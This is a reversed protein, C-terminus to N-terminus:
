TPAPAQASHFRAVFTGPDWEQDIAAQLAAWLGPDAFPAGADWEQPAAAEAAARLATQGIPMQPVAAGSGETRALAPFHALAAPGKAAAWQPIFAVLAFAEQPHQSRQHVYAHSRLWRARSPRAPHLSPFRAVGWRLAPDANVAEAGCDNIALPTHGDGFWEPSSSVGARYRLDRVMEVFPYLAHPDAANVGDQWALFAATWGYAGDGFAPAASAKHLGEALTVLEAWTPDPAPPPAGWHELLDLNYLLAPVRYGV